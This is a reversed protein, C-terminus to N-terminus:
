PPGKDGPPRDRAKSQWTPVEPVEPHPSTPKKRGGANSLSDSLVPSRPKLHALARELLNFTQTESDLTCSFSKQLWLVPCFFGHVGFYVLYPVLTEFYITFFLKLIGHALAGGAAFTKLDWFVIRSGLAGELWSDFHLGVGSVRSELARIGRNCLM